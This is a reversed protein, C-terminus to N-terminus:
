TSGSKNSAADLLVVRAWDTITRQATKAARALRKREDATFRVFLPVGRRRVPPAADNEKKPKPAARKTAM